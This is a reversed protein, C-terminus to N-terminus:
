KSKNFLLAIRAPVVKTANCTDCCRAGIQTDLPAPNHGYGEYEEDCLTCTNM